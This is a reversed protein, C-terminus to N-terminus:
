SAAVLCRAGVAAEMLVEALLAPDHRVLSGTATLPRVVLQPVQENCRALDLTVPHAGEARYHEQLDRPLSKYYNLIACDLADEAGLYRKIQRIHDAASFGDTEGRKTM